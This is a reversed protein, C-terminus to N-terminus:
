ATCGITRSILRPYYWSTCLIVSACLACMVGQTGYSVAFPAIISFLVARALLALSAAKMCGLGLALTWHAYEWGALLVYVGALWRESPQFSMPKRLWSSVVFNLFLGFGLVAAFGYSLAAIRVRKIVTNLWAHDGVASANATAGWLPQVLGVLFSIALLTIQMCIVFRSSELPRRMRTM